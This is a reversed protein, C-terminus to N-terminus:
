SNLKQIQIYLTEDYVEVDKKPCGEVPKDVLELSRALTQNKIYDGFSEVAGRVLPKDEVYVKIRDTLNLDLEKRFNQIRNVLERAIGENRLDDTINVDLAVTYKGETKVMWGPMDETTIEVEDLSLEVTQGDFDFSWKGEKEFRTIEEQSMQALAQAVSKMLKGLKRGLKKYDPKIKKVVVGTTDKIFEIEKVNVESLIIDKVANVQDEIKSDIVPILIKALPQRVKIKAQRRLSLVMSSIRQAVEMKEELDRDIMSEDVRPFDLLHVSEASRRGTVKNLDQYIREAYFPAIPAMLMAVTELATYLTQYASIKDKDYEGGWFRKRNLRVYWNSLDDIVFKQIARGARTPDYRDLSEQVEKILSNLLSFIWRDFEPREQYPIDDEAYKFGDINAYLAFFNYTNYLTGFFKRIVEEVGKLDFKLNEWPPSVTMMYWRIADAGYKDMAEFPDVVNGKRKSMKEGNADLVLGNSVVNKYAVSDFLMTALAHLTYFWGRTQDVGEAIFDAPFYRKFKEQNEFPYHQQAFPMAGSDFWVDILFEERKMPKGSDSVLVIRDVYPRHVDIKEYNEKSMDGPVFDKFPNEKMVGAEVAKEIEGILEEYSGIVKVEKGDETVWVPLPTGWYRTRSLNWDVMNKLWEGFRGQGTYPPQWNITQNLAIMREKKDTTRIFWAEIPYYLIPKDTRWCHPYSHTYKESKFLKGEKKLKVVIDINVNYKDAIRDKEKEYQRQNIEGKAYKEEIEKMERDYGQEYEPRVFRGSFEGVGDVFKGRESVLTLAGIGNQKAVRMDDAGFSPAIHVIGTGEETSVFDGVIVRFADGEEPQKYPFLQEYSVGALEKGTYEGLVSWPLVKDGPKYTMEAGSGEPKFYNPALDKALIVTVPEGTYPNFTRIKQYVIKEGVALATNSLLTWPTTTWALIYLDTDVDRFLFESKQDRKVKFMAVGTVDKIDRYCGPLNLEHSSLATGAAPSFPQITYGKYLLGRKYLEKLAWWLSEIYKPDYTIYPDDLDVWYGMLETLDEWVDTYQMVDHKCHRNYEEVSIKSGIEYKNIGLKKEVQLEVPLGHTDWGAKREVYYGQMTKYRCFLDKITRSLVHHIGPRGNASPPGEYFVFPENNERLKLSKRFTDNDKWFKLVDKNVEPLSLKKYEAFKM